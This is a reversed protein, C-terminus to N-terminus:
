YDLLTEVYFNYTFSPEKAVLYSKEIMGLPWLLAPGLTVFRSVDFTFTIGLAIKSLVFASWM